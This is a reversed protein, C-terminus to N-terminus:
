NDLDTHKLGGYAHQALAGLFMQFQTFRLNVM